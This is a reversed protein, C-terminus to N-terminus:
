VGGTGGLVPVQGQAEVPLLLLHLKPQLQLPQLVAHVLELCPALCLRTLLAPPPSHRLKGMGGEPFGLGCSQSVRHRLKGM